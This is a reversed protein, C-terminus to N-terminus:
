ANKKKLDINRYFSGYTSIYTHYALLVKNTFFFESGQQLYRYLINNLIAASIIIILRSYKVHTRDLLTLGVRRLEAVSINTFFTIMQNCIIILYDYFKTCLQPRGWKNTQRPGLRDPITHRSGVVVVINSIRDRTPRM